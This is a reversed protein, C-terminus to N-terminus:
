AGEIRDVEAIFKRYEATTTGATGWREIAELAAVALDFNAEDVFPTRSRLFAVFPLAACAAAASDSGLDGCGRLVMRLLCRVGGLGLNEIFVFSGPDSCFTGLWWAGFLEHLPRDPGTDYPQMQACEYPNGEGTYSCVGTDLNKRFEEAIGDVDREYDASAVYRLREPSFRERLFVRLPDPSSARSSPVPSPVTKEATGEVRRAKRM